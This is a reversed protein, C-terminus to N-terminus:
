RHEATWSSRSGVRHHMSSNEAHTEVASRTSDEVSIIHASCPPHITDLTAQTALLHKHTDNSHGNIDKNAVSSRQCPRPKSFWGFILIANPYRFSTRVCTRSHIALWPAWHQASTSSKPMTPADTFKSRNKRQGSNRNVRTPFPRLSLLEVSTPPMCLGCKRRSVAKRLWAFHM